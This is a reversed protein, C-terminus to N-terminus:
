FTSRSSGSLHWGYCQRTDIHLGGPTVHPAPKTLSGAVSPAPTASVIPVAAVLEVDVGGGDDFGSSLSDFPVEPPLTSGTASSTSAGPTCQSSARSDRHWGPFRIEHEQVTLNGHAAVANPLRVCRQKSQVNDGDSCLRYFVSWSCRPSSSGPM